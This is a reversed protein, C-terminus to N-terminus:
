AGPGRGLVKGRLLVRVRPPPSPAAPREGGAAPRTGWRRRPATNSRPGRDPAVLLALSAGIAAGLALATTFEISDRHIM